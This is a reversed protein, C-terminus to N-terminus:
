LSEVPQEITVIKATIKIRSKFCGMLSRKEENSGEMLIYKAYTKLDIENHKSTSSGMGSVGRNFKNHRKLEENFKIEVGTQNLDIQDMIKILQEVLEDERLYQSKCTRDRSRGCGYYIYKAVTGNKLQKYKEQGSLSSGCLGCILLKTFSFEHSQRQINDRTLQQQVQDYLDKTIINPHKGAYWNGSKKPYEFTGYYVPNILIRYINGLALHHNNVTRFNLDFKLWHYVKRGSWKEYAVKEFM